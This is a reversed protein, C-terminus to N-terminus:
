ALRRRIRCRRTITTRSVKYTGLPLAPMLYAGNPGTMTTRATGTEVHNATVTVGPLVAGSEDVITGRLEGQALQAFAPSHLPRTPPRRCRPTREDFGGIAASGNFIPTRVDFGKESPGILFEEGRM